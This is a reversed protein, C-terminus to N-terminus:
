DSFDGNEKLGGFLYLKDNMLTSSHYALECPWLSEKNKLNSKNIYFYSNDNLDVVLLEDLFKNFGRIGGYIIIRNKDPIFNM